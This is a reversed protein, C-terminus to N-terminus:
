ITPPRWVSAPAGDLPTPSGTVLPVSSPEFEAVAQLLPLLWVTPVQCKQGTKCLKGTLAYTAADNCCDGLDAKSEAGSEAPMSAQMAMMNGMPCPAQVGAAAAWGQFSISLCLLFAVFSRM